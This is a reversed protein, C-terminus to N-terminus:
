WASARSSLRTETEEQENQVRHTLRSTRKRGVRIKRTQWEQALLSLIRNTERQSAASRWHHDSRTNGSRCNLASTVLTTTPAKPCERRLHESRISFWGETKQQELATGSRSRDLVDEKTELAAESPLQNSCLAVLERNVDKDCFKSFLVDASMTVGSGELLRSAPGVFHSSHPDQQPLQSPTSPLWGLASQSLMGGRPEQHQQRHRLELHSALGSGILNHLCCSDHKWRM